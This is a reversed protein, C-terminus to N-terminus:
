QPRDDASHQEEGGQDAQAILEALRAAARGPLKDIEEADIQPGNDGVQLLGVMGLGLHPQCKFAYFGEQDYTITIEENIKGKWPDAEAPIMELISESNHGKDSAVFTVSDGPESTLFAPEFQLTRGESDKNLMEIRHDAGWASTASLLIGTAIASKLATRKM